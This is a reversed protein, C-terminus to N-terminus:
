SSPQRMVLVLKVKADWSPYSLTIESSFSHMICLDSYAVATILIEYAPLLSRELNPPCRRVKETYNSGELGESYRVGIYWLGRNVPVTPRMYTFKLSRWVEAEIEALTAAPGYATDYVISKTTMNSESLTTPARSTSKGATTVPKTLQQSADEYGNMAYNITQIRLEEVVKDKSTLWRPLTTWQSRIADTLAIEM